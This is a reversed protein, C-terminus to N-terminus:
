RACDPEVFFSDWYSILRSDRTVSSESYSGVGRSVERYWVIHKSPAAKKGAAGAAGATGLGVGGSSGVTGGTGAGPGAGLVNGNASSQPSYPRRANGIRSRVHATSRQNIFNARLTTTKLSM